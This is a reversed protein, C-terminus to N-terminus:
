ANALKFTIPLVMRQRVPKGRQKAPNWAPASMIIRVAEEDCGAGIGKVTVADFIKGDKGVIFEVYVRGEVNLRRAQAPYKINTSVYKYFESIGGKPQANEEVVLFIEDSEEEVKPVEIPKYEEVKTEETVEVDFVFKIDQEVDEEDPVAVLQPQQVIVEPPPPITTSPVEIMTEFVNTQKATLEVTAKDYQKWEFAFLVMSLTIVMSISFILGRKSTLDVNPNKKIELAM